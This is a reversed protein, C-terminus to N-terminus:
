EHVGGGNIPLVFWMTAGSNGRSEAWIRGGHAEVISRCISLGMGMGEKKTTFFPTFLMSADAESIGHGSDEIAILTKDDEYRQVSVSLRRTRDSVVAMAQIANMLLNIVVQQIQVRDGTIWLVSQSFSLSVEAQHSQLERRVLDVSQEIVAVLDISMMDPDRRQAMSRIQHIVQTARRADHTMQGLAYQVETFDPPSRKLWRMGAEGATVIAALPQTVEHAISAALEGLMTLRTVHALEARSRELAQEALRREEIDTNVGYWRVIEGDADRMPAAGIMMCRYDGNGLRVRATVEFGSGTSIGQRWAAELVGIDEAHIIDRWVDKDSAVKVGYDSWRRNLYVIRGDNSTSWVMSPIADITAVLEEKQQRLEAELFRAQTVDSDTSLVAVPEGSKDRSITWRSSIIIRTRNKCTRTFEGQWSGDEIARSLLDAAPLQSETTTLEHFAKGAAEAASWGYLREAGRSWFSILGDLGCVVVADHTLNLLDIQKQLTLRNSQNRLALASVTVIALVSLGCRALSSIATQDSQALLFGLVTMSVCSWAVVVTVAQSAVSAVLLIVVVYLVAVAVDIPTFADAIFICGALLTAILYVVRQRRELIEDVNDGFKMAGMNADPRSAFGASVASSESRRRDDDM